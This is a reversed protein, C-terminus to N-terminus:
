RRGRAKRDQAAKQQEKMAKELRESFGSRKKPKEKNLSLEAMIREDDFIFKKTGLTLGINFVNSFFLYLALGSAYNNFFFLFMVPMLYQMYKFMPNAGMAGMDMYKM